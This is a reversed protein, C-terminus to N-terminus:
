KNKENSSSLKNDLGSIMKSSEDQLEAIEKNKISLNKQYQKQEEKQLEELKSHKKLLTSYESKINM